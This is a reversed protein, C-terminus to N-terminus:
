VLHVFICHLFVVPQSSVFRVTDSSSVWVGRLCKYGHRHAFGSVLSLQRNVTACGRPHDDVHDERAFDTALKGRVLEASGLAPGM